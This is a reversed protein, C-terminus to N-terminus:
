KELRLVELVSDFSIMKKNIEYKSFSMIYDMVRQLLHKCEEKTYVRDEVVIDAQKLLKIQENNYISYLDM